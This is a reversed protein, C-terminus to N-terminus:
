LRKKGGLAARSSCAPAIRPYRATMSGAAIPRPKATRTCTVISRSFAPRDRFEVAAQRLDRLGAVWFPEEFAGIVRGRRGGRRYGGILGRKASMEPGEAAALREGGSLGPPGLVAALRGTAACQSLRAPMASAGANSSCRAGAEVTTQRESERPLRCRDGRSLARRGGCRPRRSALAAPPAASWARTGAIRMIRLAARTKPAMASLARPQSATVVLDLRRPRPLRRV